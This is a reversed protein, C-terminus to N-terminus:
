SDGVFKSPYVVVDALALERNKRECKEKSIKIGNHLTNGWAPLREAEELMLKRGLEWFAIPLDYVCAIGLEKAKTFTELAGDEYSYVTRIERKKSLHVLRRSTFQDMSHYVADVDLSSNQNVFKKLGIKPLFLRMIELAPNTFINNDPIDFSRRTFEKQINVPMLKLWFSAANISLSTNFESLKGDEYLAKLIARVFQNGTPHSLLIM